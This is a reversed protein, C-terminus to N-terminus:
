PPSPRETQAVHAVAHTQAPRSGLVKVPKRGRQLITHPEIPMVPGLVAQVPRSEPTVGRHRTAIWVCAAMATASTAVAVWKLWHMRYGAHQETLRRLIRNEVGSVPEADRYEKLAEHLLADFEHDKMAGVGLPGVSEKQPNPPGAHNTWAGVVGTPRANGRNAPFETVSAIGQRHARLFTEQVVDEADHSNRLVGYALRFLLLSYRCVCTELDLTDAADQTLCTEGRCDITFRAPNAAMTGEHTM